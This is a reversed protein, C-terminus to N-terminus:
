QSSAADEGGLGLMWPAVGGGSWLIRNLVSPPLDTLGPAVPVGGLINSMIRANTEAGSEYPNYTLGRIATPPVLDESKAEAYRVPRSLEDALYDYWQGREGAPLRIAVRNATLDPADLRDRAMAGAQMGMPHDIANELATNFTSRTNGLSSVSGQPLQRPAWNDAELRNVLGNIWTPFNDFPAFTPEDNSVLNPRLNKAADEVNAYQRATAAFLRDGTPSVGTEANRIPNEAFYRQLLPRSQDLSLNAADGREPLMRPNHMDDLRSIINRSRPTWTDAGYIRSGMLVEPEFYASVGAFQPMHGEPLGFARVGLSPAVFSGGFSEPNPLSDIQRFTAMSDAAPGRRPIPAFRLLRELASSM